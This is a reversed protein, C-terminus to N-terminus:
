QKVAKGRELEAFKADVVDCMDFLRTLSDEHLWLHVSGDEGFPWPGTLEMVSHAFVSWERIAQTPVGELEVRPKIRETYVADMDHPERRDGLTAAVAQESVLQDSLDTICDAAKRLMRSIDTYEYERVLRAMLRLDARLQAVNNDAM